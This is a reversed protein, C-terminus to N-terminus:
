SRNRRFTITLVAAIFIAFWLLSQFIASLTLEKM